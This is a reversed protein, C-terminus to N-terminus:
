RPLVLWRGVADTQGVPKPLVLRADLRWVPLAFQPLLLRVLRRLLRFQLLPM